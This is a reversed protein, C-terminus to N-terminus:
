KNENEKDGEINKNEKDEKRKKNMKIQSINRRLDTLEKHVPYPYTSRPIKTIAFVDGIAILVNTLEKMFEEDQLNAVSINLLDEKLKILDEKNM